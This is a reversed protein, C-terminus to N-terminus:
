PSVTKPPVPRCLCLAAVRPLSPPLLIPLTAGVRSQGRPTGWFCSAAARSRVRFVLEAQAEADPFRLPLEQVLLVAAFAFGSTGRDRYRAAIMRSQM